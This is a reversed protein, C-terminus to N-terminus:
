FKPSELVTATFIPIFYVSSIIKKVASKGAVQSAANIKAAQAQTPFSHSLKEIFSVPLTQSSISNQLLSPSLTISASIGAKALYAKIKSLGLNIKESISFQSVGLEKAIETQNMGGVYYLTVAVRSLEPLMEIAKKVMVELEKQEMQSSVESDQSHNLYNQTEMRGSEKKHINKTQNYIRIAEGSAIRSLWPKVPLSHDFKNSYIKLRIFTNQVADEADNSNKLIQYAISYVLNGYRKVIESWAGLNEEVLLQMLEQDNMLTLDLPELISGEVFM